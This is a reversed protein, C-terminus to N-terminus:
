PVCGNPTGFRSSPDISPWHVQLPSALVGLAMTSSFDDLTQTLHLSTLDSFLWSYFAFFFSRSIKSVIRGTGYERDLCGAPLLYRLRASWNAFRNDSWTRKRSCLFNFSFQTVQSHAIHVIAWCMFVSTATDMRISMGALTLKVEMASLIHIM